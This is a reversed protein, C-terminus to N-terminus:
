TKAKKRERMKRMREKASQVAEKGGNADSLLKKLTVVEARLAENEVELAKLQSPAVLKPVNREPTVPTVANRGKTVPNCLRSWHKEGCIKCTPADM